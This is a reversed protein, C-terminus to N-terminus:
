ITLNRWMDFQINHLFSQHRIRVKSPSAENELLLEVFEVQNSINTKKLALFLCHNLQSEVQFSHLYTMGGLKM